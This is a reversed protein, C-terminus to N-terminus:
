LTKIERFLKRNSLQLYFAQQKSLESNTICGQMKNYTQYKMENM